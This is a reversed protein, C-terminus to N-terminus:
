IGKTMDGVYDLLQPILMTIYNFTQQYRARMQEDSPLSNTRM